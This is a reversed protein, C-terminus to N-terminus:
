AQTEYCLAFMWGNDPNCGEFIYNPDTETWWGSCSNQIIYILDATLPYIGLDPDMNDFYDCLIDTYDEKKLFEGNDDYFYKRIAAGGQAGDGKIIKQLSANPADPGLNMYVVPGDVTGYHYFGDAENFLVQKTEQSMIDVYVLRKGEAPQFTFPSLVVTTQYETWPMDEVTEAPDAIREITLVCDKNEEVGDVGIVIVTTGTEGTGIMTASVSLTFSNDVVDIASEGWIFHVSGGYYGLKLDNNDVSFQYTGAETPAFLFYNRDSALATVKTSGATVYYANYEKGNASLPVTEEGLGNLLKIQVSTKEASLVAEAKDYYYTSDDDTFVLEVTYDGKPLAKQAVGNADVPQMAVQTGNQLFKVITGDVPSGQYDLIKVQYTADGGEAPDPDTQGCAALLVTSCLMALALLLAKIRKFKKM